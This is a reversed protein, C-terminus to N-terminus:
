ASKRELRRKNYTRRLPGPRASCTGLLSRTAVIMRTPCQTLLPFACVCVCVRVRVCAGVCGRVWACVCVCAVVTMAMVMIAVVMMAAVNTM